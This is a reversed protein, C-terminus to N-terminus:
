YMRVLVCKPGVNHSKMEHRFFPHSSAFPPSLEQPPVADKKEYSKLLGNSGYISVDFSMGGNYMFVACELRGLGHSEVFEQWGEVLYACGDDDRRGVKADWSGCPGNLIVRESGEWALHDNFFETPIKQFNLWKWLLDFTQIILILVSTFTM